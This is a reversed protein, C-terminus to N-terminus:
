FIIFNYSITFIHNKNMLITKSKINLQLYNYNDFFKLNKFINFTSM